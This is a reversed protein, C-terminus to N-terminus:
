YNNELINKILQDAVQLDKQAIASALDEHMAQSQEFHVIDDQDREKFFNRIVTTFNQYLDLLVNNGSAKAISIHFGIDADACKKQQKAGIAKKRQALLLQMHELDAATRNLCALRVIEKELLARVNNIEEFEARRLRHSLSEEKIKSAVITGYGQQVKLIGTMALTKVAERVSSRGVGYIEMLEPEAPIKEGKKLKGSAIDNKIATSVKESLKM